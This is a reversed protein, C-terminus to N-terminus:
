EIDDLADAVAQELTMKRGEALAAEFAEEGLQARMAAIGSEIEPQDAPDFFAGLHKLSVESTGFLRAARDSQGALALIICLHHLVSALDNRNNMGLCLRLVKQNLGIAHAYNGEHMAVFALNSTVAYIRRLDGVEQGIAFSEGYVIRARHYDGNFRAIEGIINLAGAIGPKDDLQRFLALGEEVFPISKDHDDMMSYGLYALAWAIQPIDQTNRAAELAREFLAGSLHDMNGLGAMWGACNLFKAHYRRPVSDLRDLLRRTWNIGEAHYGYHFWFLHLAGALRVGLTVNGTFSWELVARFNDHESELLMGWRYQNVLRLEPEAREALQVFYEAHRQHMFEAEGSTKLKEWAYEHITELM